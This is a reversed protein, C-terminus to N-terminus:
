KRVIEVPKFLKLTSNTQNQITALTMGLEQLIQTFLIDTKTKRLEALCNINM